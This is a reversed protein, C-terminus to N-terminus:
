RVACAICRGLGPSFQMSADGGCGPCSQAMKGDTAVRCREQKPVDSLPVSNATSPTILAIAILIGQLKM